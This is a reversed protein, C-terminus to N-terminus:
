EGEETKKVENKECFKIPIISDFFKIPQFCESSKDQEEAFIIPQFVESPENKERLIIPQKKPKKDSDDGVFTIPCFIRPIESYSKCDMEMQLYDEQISGKADYQQYEEEYEESFCEFNTEDIYEEAEGEEVKGVQKLGEEELIGNVYRKFKALDSKSQDFKKGGRISVSNIVFHCHINDTDFHTAALIQYKGQYYKLVKKVVVKAVQAEVERDFSLVFHVFQRGEEKRYLRKIVMMDQLPTRKSIMEPFIWENSTKNTIYDLVDVLQQTNSAKGNIFKLISMCM